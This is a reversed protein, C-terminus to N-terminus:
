IPLQFLKRIEGIFYLSGFVITKNKIETKGDKELFPAFVEKLDDKNVAEVGFSNIYEALETGQLARSSKPTVTIVTKALPLIQEAMKKYDKEALVGMVFHFKEGPYLEKLSKVLAAVGHGNHAGDILLYPEKCVLEMRGKWFATAIGTHIAEKRIEFGNERLAKATLIAAVANERQHNGKMKMEYFEELYWFGNEQPMIKSADAIEYPIALTKCKEKLVKFVEQAQNEFVARTGKKLIGAKETAIEALSEGLVDTHDYGIKTFVTVLPADIVNTSDLRGGLGTELVVIRCGVEKFYLMAMALCYDFMTPHVDLELDLLRRGLRVVAEKSIREGDVQIRETFDILHPSTFLGNKIGNESLIRSLFAATSGKGNTGAIHVFALKKQPNGVASLLIESVTVGPLNGFRRMGQITNVIEQYEM